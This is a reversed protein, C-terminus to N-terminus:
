SISFRELILGGGWEGCKEDGKRLEGGRGDQRQRRESDREREKERRRESEGVSGRPGEGKRGDARRMLESEYRGDSSFILTVKKKKESVTQQREQKNSVLFLSDSLPITHQKYLWAFIIVIFISSRAKARKKKIRKRFKRFM